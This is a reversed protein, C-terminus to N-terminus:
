LVAFLIKGKRPLSLAFIKTILGCKVFNDYFYVLLGDFNIKSRLAYKCGIARGRPKIKGNIADISERLCYVDKIRVTDSAGRYPVHHISRM